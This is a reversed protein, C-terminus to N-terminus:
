IPFTPEPITQGAAKLTRLREAIVDQLEIVAESRTEGYATCGPLDVAVAVFCQDLEYWFVKVPYYETPGSITGVTPAASSGVNQSVNTVEIVEPFMENIELWFGTNPGNFTTFTTTGSKM